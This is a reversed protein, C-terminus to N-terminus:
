WRRFIPIFITTPLSVEVSPLISGMYLFLGNALGKLMSCDGRAGPSTKRTEKLWHITYPFTKVHYGVVLSYYFLPLFSLANLRNNGIIFLQSNVKESSTVRDALSPSHFRHKVGIVWLLLTSTPPFRVWM